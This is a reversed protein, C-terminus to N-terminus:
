IYGDSHSLANPWVAKGADELQVRRGHGPMVDLGYFINEEGRPTSSRFSLAQFRVGRRQVLKEQLLPTAESCQNCSAEVLALERHGGAVDSALTVACTEGTGGLHRLPPQLQGVEM